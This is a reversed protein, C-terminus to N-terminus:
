YNTSYYIFDSLEMEDKNYKMVIKSTLRDIWDHIDEESNLNQLFNLRIDSNKIDIFENFYFLIDTKFSDAYNADKIDLLHKKLIEIKFNISLM